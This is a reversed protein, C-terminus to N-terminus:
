SKEGKGETPKAGVAKLKRRLLQPLEDRLVLVISQSCLGMLAAVLFTTKGMSPLVNSLWGAVPPTFYMALLMAVLFKGAIKAFPDRSGTKNAFLLGAFSGVVVPFIVAHEIGTSIGAIYLLPSTAATVALSSAAAAALTTTPEAM